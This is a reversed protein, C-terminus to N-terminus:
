LWGLLKAVSLAGGAGFITAGISVGIVIGKLKNRYADLLRGTPCSETHAHISEHLTTAIREGIKDGVEWAIERVIAKDGDDLVV